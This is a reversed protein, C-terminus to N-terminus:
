GAVNITHELVFGEAISGTITSLENAVGDSFVNDSANYTYGTM